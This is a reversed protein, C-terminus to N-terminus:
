DTRTLELFLKQKFFHSSVVHFFSFLIFSFGGSVSAKEPIRFDNGSDRGSMSHCNLGGFCGMGFILFKPGPIKIVKITFVQSDQNGGEGLKSLILQLCHYTSCYLNIEQIVHSYITFVLM